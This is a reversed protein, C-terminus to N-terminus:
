RDLALIADEVPALVNKAVRRRRHRFDYETPESRLRDHGGLTQLVEKAQATESDAHLWLETPLLIPLAAGPGHWM